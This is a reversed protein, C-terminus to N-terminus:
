GQITKRSKRFNIRKEERESEFAAGIKGNLTDLSFPWEHEPIKWHQDVVEGTPKYTLSVAPEDGEKHGCYQMGWARLLLLIPDLGRGKPTAYYEYREPKESYLRREIIGDKELRKLRTSLLYSSAGLQAQMDDFRRVGLSLERMILLTWRDGVASLSKAIPCVTSGVEDEWGM